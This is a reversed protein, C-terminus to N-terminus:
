FKTLSNYVVNVLFLPEPPMVQRTYPLDNVEFPKKLYEKKITGEGAKMLYYVVRRVMHYLFRNGFFYMILLRDREMFNVEFLNCVNNRFPLSKDKSAFISFDHEGKLGEMALTLLNRSVEGHYFYVYPSLFLKEEPTNSLIYAYVKGKTGKRPHFRMDVEIIDKTIISKASLFSNLKKKFSITDIEGDFYFNVYQNLANVGRDTRSAGNIKIPTRLIMTLAQEISGQVTPLGKQKQFGYFNKGIYEIRLLYNKM